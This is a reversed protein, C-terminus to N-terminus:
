AEDIGRPANEDRLVRAGREVFHRRQAARGFGYARVRVGSGTIGANLLNTVGLEGLYWAKEADYTPVYRGAPECFAAAPLALAALAALLLMAHRM